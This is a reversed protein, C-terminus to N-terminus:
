IVHNRDIDLKRERILGWINRQEKKLFLLVQPSSRWIDVRKIKIKIKIKIKM